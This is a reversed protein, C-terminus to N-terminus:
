GQIDKKYASDDRGDGDEISLERAPWTYVVIKKLEIGPIELSM